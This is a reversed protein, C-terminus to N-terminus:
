NILKEYINILRKEEVSWNYKNKVLISGNEGLSSAKEPNKFLYDIAKLIESKSNPNVCIGCKNKEVILKWLDFNSAIIPLKMSMYEFIKNPQSNTHNPTPLFTVIGAFSKDTIDQIEDRSIRGLYEVNKWGNLRMVSKKFEIESFEGALILKYSTNEIANIIPELGRMKSIAGFYCIFKSNSKVLKKSTKLENLLPYNNINFSYHNNKKFNETIFPTACLLADFKKSAYEEYKEIIFSLPLRIIKPIYPKYLISKPLDEHVDYIVKCGLNKLKIGVRILEPDHFHYIDAKLKLAINFIASTVKTFRSLRSEVKIGVDVIKVKNITNNGKGDNVILTVDYNNNALSICEKHFIRIDNRPHASTLHVIKKIM